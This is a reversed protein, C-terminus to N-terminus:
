WLLSPDSCTDFLAKGRNPLPPDLFLEQNVYAVFYKHLNASAPIPDGKFQFADISDRALEVQVQLFCLRHLTSPLLWGHSVPEPEPSAPEETIGTCM